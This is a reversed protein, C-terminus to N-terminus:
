KPEPRQKRLKVKIKIVCQVLRNYFRNGIGIYFDERVADPQRNRIKEIVEAVDVDKEVIEQLSFAQLTKGVRAAENDVARESDAPQKVRRGFYPQGAVFLVETLSKPYPSSAFASVQYQGHKTRTREAIKRPQHNTSGGVRQVVNARVRWFGYDGKGCARGRAYVLPRPSFPNELKNVLGRQIAVHKDPFSVALPTQEQDVVTIRWLAANFFLLFPFASRRGLALGSTEDNGVHLQPLHHADGVPVAM